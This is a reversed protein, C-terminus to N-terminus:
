VALPLAIHFRSGHGATSRVEISGGSSEIILKALALGIGSGEANRSALSGRYYPEFIHELEGPPIGPGDDSVDLCTQQESRSISLRVSGGEPSYKLANEIVNLVAQEILQANGRVIGATEGEIALKLHRTEVLLSLQESIRRVVSDLATKESADLGELQGLRLLADSLQMARQAERRAQEVAIRCEEIDREQALAYELWGCLTSLPQSLQHAVGGLLTARGIRTREARQVADILHCALQESAEPLDRPVALVSADRSIRAYFAEVIALVRALIPGPRSRLMLAVGGLAGAATAAWLALEVGGQQVKWLSVGGVLCLFVTVSVQCGLLREYLRQLESKM